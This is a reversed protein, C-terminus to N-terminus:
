AVLLRRPDAGVVVALLRTLRRPNVLVVAHPSGAVATVALPRHAVAGVVNRLATGGVAVLRGVRPLLRAFRGATRLSKKRKKLEPPLAVLVVRVAGLLLPYVFRRSQNKPALAEFERAERPGERHKTEVPGDAEPKRPPEARVSQELPREVHQLLPHAFAVLMVDPKRRKAFPKEHAQEPLQLLKPLRKPRRETLLEVGSLVRM